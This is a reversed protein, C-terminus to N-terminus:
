RKQEPLDRETPMPVICAIHLVVEAMSASPANGVQVSSSNSLGVM